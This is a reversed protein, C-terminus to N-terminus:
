LPAQSKTFLPEPFSNSLSTPVSTSNGTIFSSLDTARMIRLFWIIFHTTPLIQPNSNSDPRQIPCKPLGYSRLNGVSLNGGILHLKILPKFSIPWLNLQFAAPFIASKGLALEVVVVVVVNKSSFPFGKVQFIFFFFGFAESHFDKDILILDFGEKHKKYLLLKGPCRLFAKGKTFLAWSVSHDDHGCFVSFKRSKFINSYNKLLSRQWWEDFWQRAHSFHFPYSRQRPAGPLNSAPIRM